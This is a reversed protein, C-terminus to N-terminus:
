ENKFTRRRRKRNQMKRRSRHNKKKRRRKNVKNPPTISGRQKSSDTKTTHPPGASSVHTSAHSPSVRTVNPIESNSELRMVTHRVSSSENSVISFTEDSSTSGNWSPRLPVPYPIAESQNTGSRSLLPMDPHFNHYTVRLGTASTETFKNPLFPATTEKQHSTEKRTTEPISMAPRLTPKPNSIYFHLHTEGKQENIISQPSVARMSTEDSPPINGNNKRRRISGQNHNQKKRNQTRKRKFRNKKQKAKRVAGALSGESGDSDGMPKSLERVLREIIDEFSVSIRTNNHSEEYVLKKDVIETAKQDSPRDTAHKEEADIYTVRMDSTEESTLKDIVVEAGSAPSSVTKLALHERLEPSTPLKSKQSSSQPPNQSQENMKRRKKMKKREKSLQTSSSVGAEADDCSPLSQFHNSSHILDRYTVLRPKPCNSKSGSNKKKEQELQGAAWLAAEVGSVFAGDVTGFRDSSTHEGGFFVPQIKKSNRLEVLSSRDQLHLGGKGPVAYSQYSGRAWKNECWKSRHFFLPLPVINKKNTARLFTVLHSIITEPKLTEMISSAEGTVTMELMASHHDTSRVKVINSVWDMEPPFDNNKWFVVMYFPKSGWWPVAWGLNLRNASGSAVAMLARSLTTPLPPVFMRHHQEQLVGLPLMVLVREALYSSGDASVVLAQRGGPLDWYVRCVPSLMKVQGQPVQDLLANVLGDMGGLWSHDRGVELNDVDRASVNFWSWSGFKSNIAQHVIHQSAARDSLDRAPGWLEQHRSSLFDGLSRGYYQELEGSSLAHYLRQQVGAHLETVARPVSDGRSTVVMEAQLVNHVPPGLSGEEQAIYYLPSERRGQIVSPGEEAVWEGHRVTKVRGGIRDTAELLLVDPVQLRLLSTLAALGAVGGGAVVVRLPAAERFWENYDGPVTECPHLPAPREVKLYSQRLELRPPPHATGTVYNVLYEWLSMNPPPDSRGNQKAPDFFALLQQLESEVVEPHFDEMSIKNQAMRRKVEALTVVNASSTLYTANSRKPPTQAQDDTDNKTYKNLTDQATDSETDADATAELTTTELEEKTVATNGELVSSESTNQPQVRSSESGAADKSEPLSASTSPRASTVLLVAAVSLCRWRRRWETWEAM